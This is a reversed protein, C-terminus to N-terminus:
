GANEQSGIQNFRQAAFKSLKNRRIRSIMTSDVLQCLTFAIAQLNSKDTPNRHSTWHVRGSIEFIQTSRLEPQQNAYSELSSTNIAFAEDGTLTVDDIHILFQCFDTTVLLM